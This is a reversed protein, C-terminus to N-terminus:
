HFSVDLSPLDGHSPDTTPSGITMPTAEGPAHNREATPLSIRDPTLRLSLRILAVSLSRM